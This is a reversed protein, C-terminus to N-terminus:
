SPFILGPQHPHLPARGGGKVRNVIVYLTLTSIYEGASLVSVNGM